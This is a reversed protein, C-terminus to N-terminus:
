SDAESPRFTFTTLIESDEDASFERNMCRWNTGDITEGDNLDIDLTGTDGKDVALLAGVVTVTVSEDDIGDVYLKTTDGSGSVQIEAGGKSYSLSRLPVLAVSNFTITSSNASKNAM